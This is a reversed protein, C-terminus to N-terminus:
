NTHTSKKKNNVILLLSIILVILGILKLLVIWSETIPTTRKLVFDGNVILLGLAFLLYYKRTAKKM